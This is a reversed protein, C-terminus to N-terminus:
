ARVCVDTRVCTLTYANANAYLYYAHPRALWSRRRHRIAGRCVPKTDAERLRWRGCMDRGLLCTARPNVIHTSRPRQVTVTRHRHLSRLIVACYSHGCLLQCRGCLLQGHVSRVAVPCRCVRACRLGAHVDRRRRRRQWARRLGDDSMNISTRTFMGTATRKAM